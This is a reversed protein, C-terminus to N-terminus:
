CMEAVPQAKRDKIVFLFSTNIFKNQKEFYFCDFHLPPDQM